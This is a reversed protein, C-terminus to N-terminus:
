RSSNQQTTSSHLTAKGKLLYCRRLMRRYPIHCFVWLPQLKRFVEDTGAEITREHGNRDIFRLSRLPLFAALAPTHTTLVIQGGPAKALDLFANILIEQHDPHQSTEPEEFAYIVDGSVKENVRREAEARFFNLLILRRIGSGRKNIAIDDESKISLKFLSDFKPEAKFDPTLEQALEPAMEQLKLLTRNATEVAKARVEAKIHELEPGLEALAQQVAIKMLDAVEKDDDRSQRDSQFLAYVPLHAKITDYIKKTDEKDVLLETPTLGLEGIHERIASRVSANVNGNYAGAPVGLSTARARLDARKLELLDACGETSPHSCRIFIREKPKATTASFVKRIELFGDETM